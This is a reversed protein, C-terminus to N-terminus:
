KEKKVKELETKIGLVDKDRGHGGAMYNLSYEADELEKLLKLLEEANESFDKFVRNVHYSDLAAFLVSDEPISADEHYDNLAMVLEELRTFDANVNNPSKANKVLFVETLARLNREFARLSDHAAKAAAQQKAHLALALEAAEIFDAKAKAPDVPSAEGLVHLMKKSVSM